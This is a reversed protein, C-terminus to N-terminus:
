ERKRLLEAIETKGAEIAFTLATKGSDSELNVVAGNDLLLKVLEIQGTLAAEHLPTFGDQQRANVDAGHEILLRVIDPRGAASAAHIAAVNMKNRAAQNVNAGAGLLFEVTDRHSFFAALGVPFFGDPAFANALSPDKNTLARVRDTKGLAAAEFIDAEVGTALLIDVVDKKRYYVAKLLASAGDSDTARVLAPDKALLEKVRAVAGGKVAAIFEESSTMRKERQTARHYALTHHHSLVAAAIAAIMVTATAPGRM